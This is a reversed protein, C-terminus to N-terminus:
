SIAVCAEAATYKDALLVGCINTNATVASVPTFTASVASSGCTVSKVAGFEAGDKDIGSVRLMVSGSCSSSPTFTIKVSSVTTGSNTVATCLKGVSDGAPSAVTYVDACVSGDSSTSTSPSASVSATASASTTPRSSAGGSATPGVSALASPSADPQSTAASAVAVTLGIAALLSGGVIAGNTLTRKRM